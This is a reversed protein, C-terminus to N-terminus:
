SEQVLSVKELSIKGVFDTSLSGLYLDGDFETVSTVFNIVTGESDDLVRIIEGNGSVQAVMAGKGMEKLMELLVPFSSAIRKTL